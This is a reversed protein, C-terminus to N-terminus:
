LQSTANGYQVSIVPSWWGGTWACISTPPGYKLFAARGDYIATTV